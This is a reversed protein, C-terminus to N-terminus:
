HMYMARDLMYKTESFINKSVKRIYMKSIFNNMLNLHSEFVFLIHTNFHTELFQICKQIKVYYILFIHYM